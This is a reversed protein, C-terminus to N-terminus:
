KQPVMKRDFIRYLFVSPFAIELVDTRAPNTYPKLESLFETWGNTKHAGIIDKSNQDRVVFINPGHDPLAGPYDRIGRQACITGGINNYVIRPIADDRASSLFGYAKTPNTLAFFAMSLTEFPSKIGLCSNQITFGTKLHNVSYGPKPYSRPYLQHPSWGGVLEGNSEEWGGYNGHGIVIVSSISPEMMVEHLDSTKAPNIISIEGLSEDLVDEIRAELSGFNRSFVARGSKAVELMKKIVEAQFSHLEGFKPDHRSVLIAVDHGTSTKDHLRCYEMQTLWSGYAIRDNLGSYRFARLIKRRECAFDWDRIHINLGKSIDQLERDSLEVLEPHDM